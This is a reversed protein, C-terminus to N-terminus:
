APQERGLKSQDAVIRDLLADLKADPTFKELRTGVHPAAMRIIDGLDCRCEWGGVAQKIKSNDFLMSHTKDGHLPEAWAPHYGVLTDSPVHVIQARVGFEAAAAQYITDWSYAQDSTIHFTEGLAAPNGVLGAFARGFDECRTVTWLSSGDGHSIIPKGHQLRWIAHHDEIFASPFRTRLTHSPRVVTVKMRGARYIEMLRQEIAIKKRAYDSHPNGQPFTEAVRYPIPPHQYVMATSIFIFQAVKGAFAEIDRECQRLDYCRFQCVADWGHRGLSLFKQDDNVDGAIHQAGPPLPVGSTGRNYVTIQHGLELGAAICGYSVEGTGGIYLIKM